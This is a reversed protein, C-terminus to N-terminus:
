SIHRPGSGSAVSTEGIVKVEKAAAKGLGRHPISLRHIKDAGLDPVYVWRGEPDASVEHAYSQNQRSTIPGTSGKPERHFQFTRAPEDSLPVGTHEDLEYVSASGSNYNASTLHRPRQCSHTFHDRFARSRNIEGIFLLNGVVESSVPGDGGTSGGTSEHGLVKLDRGLAFVRGPTDEDTAYIVSHKRSFSIWSPSKGATKNISLGSAKLASPPTFTYQSSCLDLYAM